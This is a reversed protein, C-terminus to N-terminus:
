GPPFNGYMGWSEGRLYASNQREARAALMEERSRAELEAQHKEQREVWAMFAVAAVSVAILVVWWFKVILCILIMLGFILGFFGVPPPGYNGGYNVDAQAVNVSNNDGNIHINM